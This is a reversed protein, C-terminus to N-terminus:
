KFIKIKYATIMQTKFANNPCMYQRNPIFTENPTNVATQLVVRHRNVTLEERHTTCLGALCCAWPPSTHVKYQSLLCVM